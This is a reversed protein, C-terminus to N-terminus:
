MIDGDALLNEIVEWMDYKLMYPSTVDALMSIGQSDVPKPISDFHVQTLKSDSFVFNEEQRLDDLNKPLLGSSEIENVQIGDFDTTRQKYSIWRVLKILLTADQNSM